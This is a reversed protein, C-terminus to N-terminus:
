EGKSLNLAKQFQVLRIVDILKERSMTSLNEMLQRMENSNQLIAGIREDSYATLANKKYMDDLLQDIAEKDRADLRRYKVIVPYEDPELVIPQDVEPDGTRGLLYDVSCNLYDAIKALSVSSLGKKDSIQSVANVSLDCSLLMDKILVNQSKALDKIRQSLEQSTYIFVVENKYLTVFMIFKTIKYQM